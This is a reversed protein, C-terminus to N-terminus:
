HWPGSSRRDQERNPIEEDGPENAAGADPYSMGAAERDSRIGGPLGYGHPTADITEDLAVASDYGIEDHSLSSVRCRVVQGKVLARGARTLVHLSVRTGPTLRHSSRVLVGTSSVNLVCLGVGTRVRVRSLPEDPDPVRRASRRRDM